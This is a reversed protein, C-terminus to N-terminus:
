VRFKSLLEVLPAALGLVLGGTPPQKMSGNAMKGWIGVILAVMALGWEVQIKGLCMLVTLSIIATVDLVTHAIISIVEKKM